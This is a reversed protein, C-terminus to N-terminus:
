ETTGAVREVDQWFEGEVADLSTGYVRRFEAEFTEPRSAFYLDLFRSVGYKRLLFDVFAGGIPYVAGRNHHYWFPSTLEQLYVVNGQKESYATVLQKLGDPDQLTTRLERWEAESMDAHM